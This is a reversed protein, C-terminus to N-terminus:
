STAKRESIWKEIEQKNFLWSDGHRTAPIKGEEAWKQVASLETQLFEAAQQLSLSNENLTQTDDMNCIGKFYAGEEIILSPTIIDGKLKAPASLKLSIKAKVEGEVEGKIVIKEGIIKAKVKAKEGITLTGRTELDGEFNGNICLNVPDSFSLKGQMSADVNLIKKNEVKKSDRKEFM